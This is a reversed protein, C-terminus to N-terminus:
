QGFRMRRYPILAERVDPLLSLHGLKTSSYQGNRTTEITPDDRRRWAAVVQTECAYAVAPFDSVLTDTDAAFGGTYTIQCAGPATDTNSGLYTLIPYFNFHLAGTEPDVHYDDSSVPSVTDFKWDTAIKVSSIAAQNAVPFARLFVVKKRPRLDYEETREVRQLPRDMFSEIRQSVVNILRGLVTDHTSSTIELLDKVRATTTADM